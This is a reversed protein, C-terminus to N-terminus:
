DCWSKRRGKTYKRALGEEILIDGLDKGNILIRALGRGYKDKGPMVIFNVWGAKAVVVRARDTAAQGLGKEFGCRPKWTEPTDFGVLRYSQGNLKATDGDVMHIHKSAINEAHVASVQLAIAAIAAVLRKIM